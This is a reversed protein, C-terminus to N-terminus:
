PPGRSIWTAGSAGPARAAPSEQGHGIAYRAGGLNGPSQTRRLVGNRDDAPTGAGTSGDGCACRAGAPLLGPFGRPGRRLRRSSRAWVGRAHAVARPAPAVQIAVLPQLLNADSLVFTETGLEREANAGPTPRAGLSAGHDIRKGNTNGVFHRCSEEQKGDKDTKCPICVSDTQCFKTEEAAFATASSSAMLLCLLKKKMATVRQTNQPANQMTTM